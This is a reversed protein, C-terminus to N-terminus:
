DVGIGNLMFGAWHYPHAHNAQSAEDSFWRQIAHMWSRAGGDAHLAGRIMAIQAQQLADALPMGAKLYTYFRTMLHSTSRDDVRWLSALVSSAGAYHFARTLGILGEGPYDTGLATECASLTVLDANLRLSEYVEWTQLFGNEEDPSSSKPASLVITTDMPRRENLLAHAAFHLYRVNAQISKARKETAETGTYITASARYIEGIDVVEERSWPLQTLHLARAVKKDAADAHHNAATAHTIDPDGFAVLRGRETHARQSQLQAYVTLSNVTYSPKWQAFYVAAAESTSRMLAAFPLLNLSGDPVILLRDAAKIHTEVPLLLHRYLTAALEVLPTDTTEDWRGADILYRFRTVLSDLEAHGYPLTEVELAGAATLVFLRTESEGVDYSLVATGPKLLQRVETLSIPEAYQLDALRPSRKRIQQQIKQQRERIEQLSGQLTEVAELDQTDILEAQLKEYARAQIRRDRELEAPLDASFVLDREALLDSMVKSRSRELADFAHEKEGLKLLFEIYDKYIKLYQARSTAKTEETGGLRAHQADLARIAREFFTRAEKTEKRLRHVRALGYHVEAEKYTNPAIVEFIALARHYYKEADELENQALAVDGLKTASEAVGRGNPVITSYLNLGKAIHTEALTYDGRSQAVVGLNVRIMAHENSAPALRRQIDLAHQYHQEAAAYDERHRAVNGLNIHTIALDLSDPSVAQRIAFVRQQYAEAGAVDGQSLALVGLNNLTRTVAHSDPALRECLALARRYYDEAARYDGREKQLLGLNHLLAALNLSDPELREWLVLSRTWLAEAEAGDGQLYATIAMGNLYGAVGSGRPVLAEAIRLARRYYNKGQELDRRTVAVRGLKGLTHALVLTKPIEREQLRLAQLLHRQASDLKGRRMDVQGLGVLAAAVALRDPSIAKQLQMATTFSEYAKDFRSQHMLATGLAFYVYARARQDTPANLADAAFQYARGAHEWQGQEGATEAARSLLWAADLVENRQLLEKALALVADIGSGAEDSQIQLIFRAYRADIAEDWRPKFKLRWEGPGFEATIAKNGRFGHLSIKIRPHQEQELEVVDFPTSLAGHTADDENAASSLSSWRTLVDGPQIGARNGAFHPKVEEVILGTGRTEAADLQAAFLMVVALVEIIQILYYSRTRTIM